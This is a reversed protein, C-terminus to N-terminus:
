CSGTQLRFAGPERGPQLPGSCDAMPWPSAAPPTESRCVLRSTIGAAQTGPAAHVRLRCPSDLQPTPVASCRYQLAGAVEWAPPERKTKPEMPQVAAHKLRPLDLRPIELGAHV